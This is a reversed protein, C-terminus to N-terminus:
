KSSSFSICQITNCLSTIKSDRLVLVAPCLLPTGGPQPCAAAALARPFWNETCPSSGYSPNAAPQSCPMQSTPIAREGGAKWHTTHPGPLPLTVPEALQALCSSLLHAARSCRSCCWGAATGVARNITIGQAAPSLCPFPSLYELVVEHTLHQSPHRLKPTSCVM